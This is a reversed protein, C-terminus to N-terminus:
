TNCMHNMTSYTNYRSSIGVIVGPILDIRGVTINIIVILVGVIIDVMICIIGVTVSSIIIGAVHVIIGIMCEIICVIGVM